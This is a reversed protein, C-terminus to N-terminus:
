TTHETGKDQSIWQFWLLQGKLISNVFMGCFRLFNCIRPNTDILKLNFEGKIDGGKVYISSPTCCQYLCISMLRTM